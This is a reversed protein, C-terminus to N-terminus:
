ENLKEKLECNTIEVEGENPDIYLGTECFKSNWAVLDNPRNLLCKTIDHILEISLQRELDRHNYPAPCFTVTGLTDGTKTDIVQINFRKDTDKVKLICKYSSSILYHEGNLSFPVPDMKEYLRFRLDETNSKLKDEDSLTPFAIDTNIM